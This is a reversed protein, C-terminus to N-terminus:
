VRTFPAMVTFTVASQCDPIITSTVTVTMSAATAYGSCAAAYVIAM